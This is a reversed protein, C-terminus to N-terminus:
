LYPGDTEAEGVTNRTVRFELLWIEFELYDGIKLNGIVRDYGNM